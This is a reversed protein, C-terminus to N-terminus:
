SLEPSVVKQIVKIQEATQWSSTSPVEYDDVLIDIKKYFMNKFLDKYLKQM